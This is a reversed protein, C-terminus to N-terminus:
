GRRQIYWRGDRVVWTQPDEVDRRLTRTGGGPELVPILADLKMRVRGTAAAGDGEVELSVIEYALIDFGSRRTHLFEKRDIRSHSEPDLFEDLITAWDRRQRTDM